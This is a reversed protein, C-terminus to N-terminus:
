LKRCTNYYLITSTPKNIISHFDFRLFPFQCHIFTKYIRPKCIRANPSFHFYIICSTSYSYDVGVVNDIVEVVSGNALFLKVVRNRMHCAWIGWGFPFM